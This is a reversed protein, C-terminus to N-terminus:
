AFDLNLMPSVGYMTAGTGEPYPQKSPDPLIPGRLASRRLLQVESCSTKRIGCTTYGADQQIVKSGQHHQSKVRKLLSRAVRGAVKSLKMFEWTSSQGVGYIPGTLHCARCLVALLVLWHPLSCYRSYSWPSFNWFNWEPAWSVMHITKRRKQGKKGGHPNRIKGSSVRQLGTRMNDNPKGLPASPCWAEGPSFLLVNANM